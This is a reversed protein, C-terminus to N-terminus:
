YFFTRTLSCLQDIVFGFFFFFFHHLIISTKYYPEVVDARGVATVLSVEMKVDKPYLRAYFLLFMKQRLSNSFMFFFRILNYFQTSFINSSIISGSRFYKVSDNNSMEDIKNQRVWLLMDYVLRTKKRKKKKKM